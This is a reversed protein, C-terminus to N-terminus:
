VANNNLNYTDLLLEYVSATDIFQNVRETHASNHASAMTSNGNGCALPEEVGDGALHVVPWVAGGGGDVLGFNNRGQKGRDHTDVTGLVDGERPEVEGLGAGREEVRVYIM